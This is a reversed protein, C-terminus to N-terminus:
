SFIDDVVVVNMSSQGITKLSRPKDLIVIESASRVSTEVSGVVNLSVFVKLLPLLIQNLM